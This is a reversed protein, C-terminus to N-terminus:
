EQKVFKATVRDNGTYAVLYYIGNVLASVDVRVGEGSAVMAGQQNLITYSDVRDLNIFFCHSAPNPYLKIKQQNELPKTIIPTHSFDIYYLQNGHEYTFLNLWLDTGDVYYTPSSVNYPLRQELGCPHKIIPKGSDPIYVYYDGVFFGHGYKITSYNHIFFPDLKNLNEDLSYMTFSEEDYVEMFEQNMNNRILGNFDSRLYNTIILEKTVLDYYAVKSSLNYGSLNYM